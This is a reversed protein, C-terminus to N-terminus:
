RRERRREMKRPFRRPQRTRRSAEEEEARKEEEKLQYEFDEVNISFDEDKKIDGKLKLLERALLWYALALSKRGKNNIPIVLDINELSNNTSALALVPAKIKVAEQIAQKDYEPDTVVLADCELFLRARPNTFTGPMFRGTVVQAGIAEAFKQVPTHGYTKRSVVVIKQPEYNNLFQAGIKIRADITEVDLVKLGDKRAKFIYRQMDGTKFRTGIHSGTKLYRELQVLNKEAM